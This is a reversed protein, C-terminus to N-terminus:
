SKGACAPTIGQHRLHHRSEPGKGRVRPPSGKQGSNPMTPRLKEGCVRPHDQSRHRGPDSRNRKGACAPTIGEYPFDLITVLAKGRVRPPSGLLPLTPVFLYVKEGCVRPHDKPTLTWGLLFSSKGACAPTIRSQTVASVGGAAKGRVRPPSGGRCVRLLSRICKEGCVRPHDGPLQLNSGQLRSKGACAPTIRDGFFGPLFDLEKGRVRPPSGMTFCLTGFQPHKEGCM